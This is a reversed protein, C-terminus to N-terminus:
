KLIISYSKCRDMINYYYQILPKFNELDETFKFYSFAKEVHGTEFLLVGILFDLHKGESHMTGYQVDFHKDRYAVMEKLLQQWESKLMCMKAYTRLYMIDNNDKDIKKLCDLIPTLEDYKEERLKFQAFLNLLSFIYEGEQLNDVDLIKKDDLLVFKNIIKNVEQFTIEQFGDRMYSYAWRPNDPEINKMKNLLSLNRIVKNKEQLVDPKYGDHKIPIDVCVNNIMVIKNDAIKRAEEHILGYYRIGSDKRFIRTVGIYNNEDTDIIRPSVTISKACGMKDFVALIDGVSYDMDALEEDADIFFVWDTNVQDLAFNRAESFNEKWKMQYLKIKSSKLNKILEITRDVSGTDVVVIDDFKDLISKLCREIVREEDKLIIAATVNAKKLTFQEELFETAEEKNQFNITQSYVKSEEALEGNCSIFKSIIAIWKELLYCNVSKGFQSKIESLQRKLIEINWLSYM